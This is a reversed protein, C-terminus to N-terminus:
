RKQPVLSKLKISLLVVIIPAGMVVAFAGRLGIHDSITGIVPPGMLFGLFSIATVMSIATSASVNGSRGAISFCIPVVAAMGFGVFASGIMAPVLSPFTVLLALGITMSVSSVRLVLVEGYRNIFGDAIFRASVMSIMCVLYGLRASFGQEHLVSVFYVSNWDYMSGEVAMSGFGIIGLIVLLIDPMVWRHRTLGTHAVHPQPDYKMLHKWAFTSIVCALILICLFHWHPSVGWGAMAGGFLGGIVGGLSWCGHLKAMISRGYLNEVGVAQANVSISLMSNFVGFGILVVFLQHVSQVFSLGVLMIAYCIMAITALLRSGVRKVLLPTVIMSPIQGIPAAFLAFGLAADSLNLFAKIDPIRSAWSAFTTGLIFMGLSVALRNWAKEESPIFPQLFQPLSM